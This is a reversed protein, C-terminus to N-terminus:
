SGDRATRTVISMLTKAIPTQIILWPAQWEAFLTSLGVVRLEDIEHADPQLRAEHRSRTTASVRAEAPAPPHDGRTNAM